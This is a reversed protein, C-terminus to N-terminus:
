TEFVARGRPESANRRVVAAQRNLCVTMGPEFAVADGQSDLLLRLTNRDHDGVAREAQLDRIGRARRDGRRCHNGSHPRIRTGVGEGSGEAGGPHGSADSGNPADPMSTDM